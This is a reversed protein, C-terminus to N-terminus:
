KKSICLSECMCRHVGESKNKRASGFCLCVWKAADYDTAERCPTETEKEPDITVVQYNRGKVSTVVSGQQTTKESDSNTRNQPM